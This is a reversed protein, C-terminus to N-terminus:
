YVNIPNTVIESFLVAFNINNKSIIDYFVDKTFQESEFHGIDVLVIKDEASFYDHYKIDGTVFVDANVSLANKIYTSGSGGCVAITKVPKGLLKSHRVLKLGFKNKLIDFFQKESLEDKLEGYMGLGARDWKNRIKIVDYAVEEYPHAQIMQRIIHEHIHEPFVVEIRMEDEFHIKEKEGVFPNSGEGAKFSGFGSINYSCCSYDGIQGGGAEFIANRVKDAHDKPVYTILKNLFDVKPALIRCNQLELKECIKRSVGHYASDINTHASYIAIDNKIATIISIQEHGMGILKKIGSIMLPHHSIVLNCNKEVAEDIVAPTVDICLLVGTINQEADGVLLGSNDFDEQLKLPAFEEIIKTLEKIKM